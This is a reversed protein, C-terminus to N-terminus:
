KNSKTHMISIRTKGSDRSPNATITVTVSEQKNVALSIMAGDPTDFAMAKGGLKSKYFDRVQEKSDSTIFMGTVMTGDPMDLRAGGQIGQAGPYPDTGLEAASYTESTNLNVKGEPTQLTMQDGHGTINTSRSARCGVNGLTGLSLIGLGVIAAVIVPIFKVVSSGSKAPAEGHTAAAAGCSTCFQKNDSISSGCKACFSAM